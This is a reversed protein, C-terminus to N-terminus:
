ARAAAQEIRVGQAELRQSAAEARAAAAKAEEASQRTSELLARDEKNLSACGGLGLLAALLVTMSLTMTTKKTLM